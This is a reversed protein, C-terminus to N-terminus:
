ESSLVKQLAPDGIKQIMQQLRIAVAEDKRQRIFSTIHHVAIRYCIPSMRPTVKGTAVIRLYTEILRVDEEIPELFCQMPIPLQDEPLNLFRLMIAQEMWVYKRLRSDHKQQLPVLVYMGFIPNCYSSSVFQECLERYFDYFSSIGAIESSFDLRDNHKLLQKLIAHLIDAVDLFVDGCFFVCSIRCYRAVLPIDIKIYESFYELLYIWKLVPTISEVSVKIETEKNNSIKLIPLYHWDTSLVSETGCKSSILGSPSGKSLGLEKVFYVKMNDLDSLANAFNNDDITIMQQYIKGNFLIDNFIDNVMHIDDSHVMRVLTFALELLKRDLFVDWKSCLKLLDCLFTIEFRACWLSSIKNSNDLKLIQDIYRWLDNNFVNRVFAHSGNQLGYKVLSHVIVLNNNTTLIEKPVCLSPLCEIFGEENANLLFSSKALDRTIKAYINANTLVKMKINYTVLNLSNKTQINNMLFISNSLMKVFERSVKKETAFVNIWRCCLEELVPILFRVTEYFQEFLFVLLTLLSTAFLIVSNQVNDANIAHLQNIITYFVPVIESVSEAGIHHQLLVQWLYVCQSVTSTKTVTDGINKLLFPILNLRKNLVSAFEPSRSAIVRFLIMLKATYMKENNLSLECNFFLIELLNPTNLIAVTAEFSHYSIRTLCKIVCLLNDVEILPDEIIYKLRLVLDTRLAGKILDLKLIEVDQMEEINEQTVEKEVVEFTPLKLDGFLGVMDSLYHMDLARWLLASIARLAALYVTRLREDLSFRLILFIQSEVLQKLLPTALYDALIYEKELIAALTNLAVIRQRIISSRSLQYLEEITYGPRHPEDGHHYLGKECTSQNKEIFPLLNGEFDFRASYFTEPLPEKIEPVDEMWKLKEPEVKDMHVGKNKLELDVNLSPTEISLDNMPSELGTQSETRIKKLFEVHSPNLVQLLEERAKLIEEPSMSSLKNVNESHIESAEPGGVIYSRDGFITGPPPCPAQPQKLNNETERLKQMKLAFLSPKRPASM